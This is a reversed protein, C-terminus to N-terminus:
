RLQEGRRSWSRLRKPCTEKWSAMDAPITLLSIDRSSLLYWQKDLPIGQPLTDEMELLSLHTTQPRSTDVPTDIQSCVQVFFDCDIVRALLIVIAWWIKKGITVDYIYSKQFDLGVDAVGVALYKGDPSFKISYTFSKHTWVREIKVQLTPKGATGDDPFKVFYHAQIVKNNPDSPEVLAEVEASVDRRRSSGPVPASVRSTITRHRSPFYRLFSFELIRYWFSKTFSNSAHSSGNSTDASTPPVVAGIRAALSSESM